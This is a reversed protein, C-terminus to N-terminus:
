AVLAMLRLAEELAERIVPKDIRVLVAPHEFLSGNPGGGLLLVPPLDLRAEDAMELFRRGDAVPMHPDLLVGDFARLCLNAVGRRGDRAQVAEVGLADLMAAVATRVSADDDVVLLLPRHPAAPPPPHM